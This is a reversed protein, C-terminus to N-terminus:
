RLSDLSVGLLDALSCVERWFWKTEGQLKSTLMPLSVGISDALETKTHGKELLWKGVATNIGDAM